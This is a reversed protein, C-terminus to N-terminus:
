FARKLGSRLHAEVNESKGQRREFNLLGILPRLLGPALKDTLRTFVNRSREIEGVLEEYAALEM